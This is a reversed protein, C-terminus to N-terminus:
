FVLVVVVTAQLDERNHLYPRALRLSGMLANVANPHSCHSMTFKKNLRSSIVGRYPKSNHSVFGKFGRLQM